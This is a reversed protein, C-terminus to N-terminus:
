LPSKSIRSYRRPYEEPSKSVKKITIVRHEIQTGPITYDTEYDILGGLREIANLSDKQEDQTNTSKMALFYGGIRVFPLCLECLINLKAVARSVAIDYVERMELMHSAEEARAHLCTVRVGLDACLKELFEVRKAKADLLTLEISPKAIKLPLGPFGAGSGIDIVKKNEFECVLFLALSDLFHLKAVEQMGRIATLNVIEGKEELYAYYVRFSEIAFAPLYLGLEMAGNDIIQTLTDM